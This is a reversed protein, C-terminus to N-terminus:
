SAGQQQHQLLTNVHINDIMSVASAGSGSVTSNVPTNRTPSIFTYMQSPLSLMYARRRKHLSTEIPQKLQAPVLKYAKCLGFDIQVRRRRHEDPIDPEM